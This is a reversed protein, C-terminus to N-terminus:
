DLLKVADALDKPIFHAYTNYTITVNKHGVIESVKKIDVGKSLLASVFSHRLSHVGYLKNKGPTGNANTEGFGCNYLIHKMIKDINTVTYIRDNKTKFLYDKSDSRNRLDKLANIAANNLPVVRTGSHTKTSDQVITRYKKGDKVLAVNKSVTAVGHELDIDSWQLAIIEGARMGTNAALVFFQAAAYKHNGNGHLSMAEKCILNVESQTYFKISPNKKSKPVKVGRIPNYELKRQEVLANLCSNLAEYTKKISSDSMGKDRMNNLISQMDDPKLASVQVKGIAPYIYNRLTSARRQYSLPKLTSKLSNETWNNVVDEVTGHMTIPPSVSNRLDRLIRKAEAETACTKQISGFKVGYYGDKRKHYSGVSKRAM